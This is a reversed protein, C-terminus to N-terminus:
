MLMHCTELQLTQHQVAFHKQVKFHKEGLPLNKCDLKGLMPADKQLSQIRLFMYDSCNILAVEQSPIAKM